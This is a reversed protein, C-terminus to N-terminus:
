SVQNDSCSLILPVPLLSCRCVRFLSSAQFLSFCVCITLPPTTVCSRLLTLNPFHWLFFFRFLKLNFDFSISALTLEASCTQQSLDHRILHSPANRTYKVILHFSLLMFLQMYFSVVCCIFKLNISMQESNNRRLDVSISNSPVLSLQSKPSCIDLRIIKITNKLYLDILQNLKFPSIPKLSESIYSPMFFNLLNDRENSTAFTCVFWSPKSHTVGDLLEWCIPAHGCGSPKDTIALNLCQKDLNPSRTTFKFSCTSGPFLERDAFEM